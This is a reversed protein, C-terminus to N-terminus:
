TQTELKRLAVGAPCDCYVEDYDEEREPQSVVEQTEPYWGTGHCKDCPCGTRTVGPYPCTNTPDSM